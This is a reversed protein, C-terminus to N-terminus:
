RSRPTRVRHENARDEVAVGNVDHADSAHAEQADVGGLHTAAEVRGSRKRPGRAIPEGLEDQAAPYPELDLAVTEVYIAPM